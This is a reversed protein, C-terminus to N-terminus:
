TDPRSLTQTTLWLLSFQQFGGAFAATTDCHPFFSHASQQATRNVTPTFIRPQQRHHATTQKSERHPASPRACASTVRRLAPFIFSFSKLLTVGSTHNEMAM